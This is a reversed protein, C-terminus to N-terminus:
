RGFDTVFQLLRQGIGSTTNAHATATHNPIAVPNKRIGRMANAFTSNHLPTPPKQDPLPPLAEAVIMRGQQETRWEQYASRMEEPSLDEWFRLTGLDTHTFAARWHRKDPIFKSPYYATGGHRTAMDDAISAGAIVEPECGNITGWDIAAFRKHLSNPNGGCSRNKAESRYASYIVAHAEQQGPLSCRQMHQVIMMAMAPGHAQILHPSPKEGDPSQLAEVLLEMNFRFPKGDTPKIAIIFPEKRINPCELVIRRLSGAYKGAMLKDAEADYYQFAPTGTLRKPQSHRQSRRARSPSASPKEHDGFINRAWEIFDNAKATSPTLAVAAGAMLAFRRTVTAPRKQVEM